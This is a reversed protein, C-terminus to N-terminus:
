RSAKSLPQRSRVSVAALTEVDSVARKINKQIEDSREVTDPVAVEKLVKKTVSFPRLTSFQVSVRM